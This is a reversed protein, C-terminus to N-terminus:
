QDANFIDAAAKWSGAQKKWAVVYKGKTTQPKGKADNGTLEFTGVEYALDGSRAVEIRTTAFTLAFGPTAMLQSWTQRIAEKGSALPANPPLVAGDDAYFSASKEADKAQVAELWQKVQARIAAEDAARTDPAPPAAQQCAVVFSLFFVLLLVPLLRSRNM